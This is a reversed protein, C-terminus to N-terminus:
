FDAEVCSADRDIGCENAGRLIKFYGNDGFTKGWSNAIQWYDKQEKECRGWGIIKIAHGGLLPSGPTRSYVGHKYTLFDRYVMFTGEVPGNKMIEEQIEQVNNLSRFSGSKGKFQQYNSGDDCTSQCEPEFGDQGSVYPFCDDTPLGKETIYNWALAPYGGNCGMNFDTDCSVLHQPSFTTNVLGNTAICFRDALVESAAFAWCSGCHGQDRISGICGPFEHRSDWKSPIESPDMTLVPKSEPTGIPKNTGILSMVQGLNMTSFLNDDTATWSKPIANLSKVYESTIAPEDFNLSASVVALVVTAILLTSLFKM